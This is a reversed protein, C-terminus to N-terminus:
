KYVIYVKGIIEISLSSIQEVFIVLLVLIIVIFPSFQPRLDFHVPVSYNSLFGRTEKQRIETKVGQGSYEKTRSTNNHVQQTWVSSFLDAAIYFRCSHFWVITQIKIYFPKSWTAWTGQWSCLSSSWSSCSAWSGIWGSRSHKWSHSMWCERPM